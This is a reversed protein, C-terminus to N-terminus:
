LKGFKTTLEKALVLSNDEVEEVQWELLLDELTNHSLQVVTGEWEEVVNDDGRVQRNSELIDVVVEKNTGLWTAWTHLTGIEELVVALNENVGTLGDVVIGLSVAAGDNDTVWGVSVGHDALVVSWIDWSLVESGHGSKVVVSSKGLKSELGVGLDGVDLLHGDPAVVGWGHVWIDAVGNDVSLRGWIENIGLPNSILEGWTDLLTTSLDNLESLEGGSGGGTVGGNVM